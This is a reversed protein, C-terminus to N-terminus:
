YHTAMFNEIAWKNGTARVKAEAKQLPTQKKEHKEEPIWGNKRLNELEEPTAEALPKCGIIEIM